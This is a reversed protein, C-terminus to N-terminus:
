VYRRVGSESQFAAAAPMDASAITAASSFYESTERERRVHRGVQALQDAPIPPHPQLAISPWSRRLVAIPRQEFLEGALAAHAIVQALPDVLGAEGDVVGM